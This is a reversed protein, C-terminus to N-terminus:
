LTGHSFTGMHQHYDWRFPRYPRPKAKDVDFDKVPTPLPVGSLAFYDPFERGFLREKLNLRSSSYALVVFCAAAAVSWIWPSNVRTLLELM